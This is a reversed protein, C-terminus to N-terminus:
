WIISWGAYFSPSRSLPRTWLPWLDLTQHSSRFSSLPQFRSSSAQSRTARRWIWQCEVWQFEAWWWEGERRGWSGRSPPRRERFTIKEGKRSKKKLELSHKAHFKTANPITLSRCNNINQISNSKFQFPKTKSRRTTKSIKFISDSFVHSKPKTIPKSSYTYNNTGKRKPFENQDPTIQTQNVIQKQFKSNSSLFLM